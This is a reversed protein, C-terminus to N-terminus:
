VHTHRDSRGAARRSGRACRCPSRGASAAQGTPQLRSKVTATGEGDRDVALPLDTLINPLVTLSLLNSARQAPEGPPQVLAQLSYTGVALAAPDNPVTFQLLGAEAGPDANIDLEVGLQRNELRVARNTGNLRHGEVTVVEGLVAGPQSNPPRVATIGPLPPFLDPQVVVGRERGTVEDVPGRTLVPLPARGASQSEILVVSARYAATPRYRAQFAAWLKSLEETSPSEQTLKVMEVQAALRSAQLAPPLRDEIQQRTLVPVMHLLQMGYGLLVEAQLEQTGYATLLYHLDLGLPPNTSRAGRSDTSPLDVNRWGSNPSVQYMYLNLRPTAAPGTLEVADAAVATVDANVDGLAANANQDATVGAVALATSM